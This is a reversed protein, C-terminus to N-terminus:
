VQKTSQKKMLKEYECIEILTLVDFTSFTMLRVNSVRKFTIVMIKEKLMYKKVEWGLVDFKDIFEKLNSNDYSRVPGGFLNQLKIYLGYSPM